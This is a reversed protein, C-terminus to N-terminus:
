MTQAIILKKKSFAMETFHDTQIERDNQSHNKWGNSLMLAKTLFISCWFFHGNHKSANRIAKKIKKIANEENCEWGMEQKM